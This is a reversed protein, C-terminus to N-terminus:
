RVPHPPINVSLDQQYGDNVILNFKVPETADGEEAFVSAAIMISFAFLSMIKFTISFHKAM